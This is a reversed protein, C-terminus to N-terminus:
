KSISSNSLIVPEICAGKDVGGFSILCLNDGIKGIIRLQRNGIYGVCRKFYFKILCSNVLIIDVTIINHEFICVAKDDSM